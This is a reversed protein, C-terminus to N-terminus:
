PLTSHEKVMLSCTDFRNHFCGCYKKQERTSSPWQYTKYDEREFAFGCRPSVRSEDLTWSSAAKKLEHLFPVRRVFLETYQSLRADEALRDSTCLVAVVFRDTTGNM